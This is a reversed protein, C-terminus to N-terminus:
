RASRGTGRALSFELPMLRVREPSQNSRRFMHLGLKQPLAESHDRVVIESSLVASVGNVIDAPSTQGPQGPASASKGGQGRRRAM